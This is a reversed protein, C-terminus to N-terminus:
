ILNVIPLHLLQYSLYVKIVVHKDCVVPKSPVIFSLKSMHVEKPL